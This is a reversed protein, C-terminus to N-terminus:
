NIGQYKKHCWVTFGLFLQLCALCSRYIFPPFINDQCSNTQTIATLTRTSSPSMFEYGTTPFKQLLKIELIKFHVINKYNQLIQKLSLWIIKPEKKLDSFKKAIKTWM